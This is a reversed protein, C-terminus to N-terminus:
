KRGYRWMILADEGDAVYYKPRRGKVEFGMSEYLAIASENHERVELTMNVYGHSMSYSILQEMLARGYGKGQEQPDVAINVVHSEDLFVWVGGYGMVRDEVTLVYFHAYESVLIEQMFLNESWPDSFCKNEIIIVQMLDELGMERISYSGM